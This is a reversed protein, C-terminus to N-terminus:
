QPPFKGKRLKDVIDLIKNVFDDKNGGLKKVEYFEKAIAKIYRNSHGENPAWHINEIGYYPDIGVSKLVESSYKAYTQIIKKRNSFNGKVAVHHAHPKSMGSPPNGRKKKLYNGFNFKSLDGITDANNEGSKVAKVFNDKIDGVENKFDNVVESFEINPGVSVRGVGPMEVEVQRTLGKLDKGTNKLVKGF